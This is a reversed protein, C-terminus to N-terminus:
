WIGEKNSCPLREYLSEPTNWLMLHGLGISEDNWIGYGDPGRYALSEKMLNLDSFLYQNEKLDIFELIASM